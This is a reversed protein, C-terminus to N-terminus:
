CDCFWLRWQPTLRPPDGRWGREHLADYVEEVLRQPDRLRQITVRIVRFGLQTLRDYRGIDINWQSRDTRHQDGEYELIVRQDEHLQDVTALREGTVPDYIEAQLKPCPLGALVQILRLQTERVSQAGVRVLDLAARGTLMLLPSTRIGEVTTLKLHLSRDAIAVADPLQATSLVEAVADAPLLADLRPLSKPNPTTTLEIGRHRCHHRTPSRFHVPLDAGIDLGVRRLATVGCVMSDPPLVLRAATILDELVVPGATAYVGHFLRQFRKGQLVGRTLGRERAQALTFIDTRARM